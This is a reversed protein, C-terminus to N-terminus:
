FVQHLIALLRLDDFLDTYIMMYNDNCRLIWFNTMLVMDVFTLVRLMLSGKAVRKHFFLKDGHKEFLRFNDTQLLNQGCPNFLSFDVFIVM